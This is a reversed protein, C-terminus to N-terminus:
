VEDDYGGTALYKGDRSWAAVSVYGAHGILARELVFTQSNWVRVVSDSGGTIFLSLTPHVALGQLAGRPLISEVTWSEIGAIRTPQTVLASAVIPKNASRDQALAHEVEGFAIGAFLGATISVVRLNTRTM